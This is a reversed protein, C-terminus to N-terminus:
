PNGKFLNDIGSTDKSDKAKDLANEMDQSHKKAIIWLVLKELLDLIKPGMRLLALIIDLM